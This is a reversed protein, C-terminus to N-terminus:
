ASRSCGAETAVSRERDHAAHRTRAFFFKTGAIIPTLFSAYNAPTRENPALFRQSDVPRLGQAGALRTHFLWRIVHFEALGDTHVSTVKWPIRCGVAADPHRFIKGGLKKLPDLNSSWDHDYAAGV